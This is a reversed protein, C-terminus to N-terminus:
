KKQRGEQQADANKEKVQKKPLLLLGGIGDEVHSQQSRFGKERGVQEVHDDAGPHEPDKREDGEIGDRHLFQGGQGAAHDERWARDSGDGGRHQGAKQEFAPPVPAGNHQAQDQDGKRRNEQAVLPKLQKADEANVHPRGFVQEDRNHHSADAQSNEQGGGVISADFQHGFLNGCDSPKPPHESGDSPHAADRQDGDDEM